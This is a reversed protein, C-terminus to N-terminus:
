EKYKIPKAPCGVAVCNAPLDKTVVAGAGITTNAGISTRNIISSNTGMYVKTGIHTEGAINVAHMFSCFPEIVADHGVTCSLNLLTFAGVSIDCTLITGACCLVGEGISVSEEDLIIADPSIIAPFSLHRKNLGDFVKRRTNSDGIAIAVDLSEQQLSLDKVKGLVPLGHILKGLETGDDYFGKVNWQPAKKNISNILGLTERGQGGAGIIVIDKVTQKDRM